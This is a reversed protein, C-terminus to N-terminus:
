QGDPHLKLAAIAKITRISQMLINMNPQTVYAYIASIIYHKTSQKSLFDFSNNRQESNSHSYKITM